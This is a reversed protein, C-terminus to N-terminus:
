VEVGGSRRRAMGLSAKREREKAAEKRMRKMVAEGSWIDGGKGGGWMRFRLTDLSGPSSHVDMHRQQNSLSRKAPTKVSERALRETMHAIRDAEEQERTMRLQAQAQAAARKKKLESLSDQVRDRIVLAQRWESAGRRMRVAARIMTAVLKLTPRKGGNAVTKREEEFETLRNAHGSRRLLALDAKNCAEFMDIQMGMYSKAFAADSRLGEERKILAQLWQIQLVLGRLERTHQAQAEALVDNSHKSKTVSSAPARQPSNMSPESMSQNAFRVGKTLRHKEEEWSALADSYESELRRLERIAASTRDKYTQKDEAWTSSAASFETELRRLQRISENARDKQSAREDRVRKLQVRLESEKNTMKQIIKTSEALEIELESARIQTERLMEHLESRELAMTTDHNTSRRSSSLDKELHSIKSKLRTITQELVTTQSQLGEKSLIASELDAELRDKELDWAAANAQIELNLASIKRATERESEKLQNRVDKLSQHAASLQSRVELLESKRASSGVSSSPSGAQLQSIEMDHSKRELDAIQRKLNRIADKQASERSMYDTEKQRLSSLDQRLTSLESARGPSRSPTNSAVQSELENIRQELQQVTRRSSHLERDSTSASLKKQLELINGSLRAEEEGAREIEEQLQAETAHLQDSLMKIEDKGRRVESDLRMKATRLELKEQDLRATDEGQGQFQELQIRYEDRECELDAATAKVSALEILLETLQDNLSQKEKRAKSLQIEFDQLRTDLQKRFFSSEQPESHTSELKQVELKKVYLEERLTQAEQKAANIDNRAQESEDDLSTQLVEIEDELGEAKEALTKQERQSLRLEEKVGSLDSRLEELALRRTEVDQTLEEIQRKLLAEADSHRQKESDLAERMKSEKGTLATEAEQLKDLTRQLGNAREEAQVHQAELHRRESEWKDDADDNLRERERLDARLDEIDDNLRDIESKYQDRIERESQLALTKEHDLKFELDGITERAERLDDQLGTSETSLADHRSQLLDKEDSKRKLEDQHSRLQSEIKAREAEAVEFDERLQGERDNGNEKLKQMQLSLADFDRNKEEFQQKLDAHVQKLDELDDSIRNAKEEMQRSLGKSTMSKNAIEEQLEELDSIARDKESVAESSEEKAEEIENKLRQVDRQLEDITERAEGLEEISQLQEELEIQRRKSEKAEMDMESLIADKEQLQSKLTDVEDDRDEVMRDKERLEHELDVVDDRLKDVQAADNEADRLRDKLDQVELEKEELGHQLIKLEAQQDESRQKHKHREQMEVLQRRYDELDKEANSLNKRYRLLEKQMTVKDVKLETNERLAAESFGPGAKRLAEELFHIKLKLGFNEKEIKDIVNEQERLSLQNGDQLVDKGGRRAPIAMPTSAASSSAMVPLPTGNVYSGNNSENYISSGFHPLPTNEDINDLAGPKLFAPTAPIGGNEKGFRMASNRTASKLLPTFEGGGAFSPLNRRDVLPARSRPTRIAGRRGNKLQEILNNKDKSPSQFSLEQSIDFEPQHSLYTADGLNTRPTDLGIGPQVM